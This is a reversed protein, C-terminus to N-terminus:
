CVYGSILAYCNVACFAAAELFWVFEYKVSLIEAGELLGGHGLVHLVPVMIMCVIRLLDIGYNRKSATKEM